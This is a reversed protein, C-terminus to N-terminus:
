SKDVESIDDATQFSKVSIKGDKAKTLIDIRKQSEDLKRTLERAINIGDEFLNLSEELSIEGRDLREVIDELKKLGKDFSDEAM